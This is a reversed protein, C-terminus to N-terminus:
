LGGLIMGGLTDLVSHEKTLVTSVIVGLSWMIILTGIWPLTFTAVWLGSFLCYSAHMSPFANYPKTIQHYQNLLRESRRAVNLELRESRCPYMWYMALSLVFQAGYGVAISASRPSAILPIFALNGLVFGSFYLYAMWPLFPICDDFQCKTSSGVRQQRCARDNISRHVVLWIAVMPLYLYPLFRAYIVAHGGRLCQTM